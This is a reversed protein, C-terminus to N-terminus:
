RFARKLEPSVDFIHIGGGIVKSLGIWGRSDFMNLIHDVVYKPIASSNAITENYDAGANVIELAVKRMWEAYEPISTEAYTEFGSLTPRVYGIGRPVGGALLKLELYGRNGLVEISDLVEERNIDLSDTDGYVSEPQILWSNENVALSCISNLVINDIRTLGPIKVLAGRVYAPPPGLPPKHRHDYIAAVIRDLEPGYSTLDAIREWVTSKLAEPVECDDIVVPIIKTQKSLRQVISANLEERVWPKNISNSSVVIIVADAEKLGEEFIKDVLSDGPLIEWKDVWADIGKARLAEAFRLVFRDKDESAHSVFVKPPTTM